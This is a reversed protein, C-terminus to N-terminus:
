NKNGADQSAGILLKSHLEMEIYLFPLDLTWFWDLFNKM